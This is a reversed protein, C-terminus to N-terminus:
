KAHRKRRKLDDTRYLDEIQRYVTWGGGLVGMLIFVTLVIGHAGLWVDMRYGAWFCLGLCGAMTLGLQSVVALDGLIGADQSNKKFISRQQKRSFPAESM